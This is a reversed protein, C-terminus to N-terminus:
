TKQVRSTAFAEKDLDKSEIFFRALDRPYLRSIRNLLFDFRNLKTLLGKLRAHDIEQGTSDKIM